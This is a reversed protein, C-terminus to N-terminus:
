VVLVFASNKKKIIAGLTPSSLSVVPISMSQQPMRFHSFWKSFHGYRRSSVIHRGYSGAIRGCLPVWLYAYPPYATKPSFLKIWFLWVLSAAWHGLSIKKMHLSWMFHCMLFCQFIFCFLYVVVCSIHAIALLGHCWFKQFQQWTSLKLTGNGMRGHSGPCSSGYGPSLAEPPPQSM